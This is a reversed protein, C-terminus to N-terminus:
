KGLEFFDHAVKHTSHAVEEFTRGTCIAIQKVVYPLFSPENRKSKPPNEMIKKPLMFPGDTEVMLRETPIYQVVEQLHALSPKCIAGTIGIYFGRDLYCKLEAQSGTFCHVVAKPFNEFSDIIELFRQHADREHFSYLNKSKM